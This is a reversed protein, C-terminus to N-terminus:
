DAALEDVAVLELFEGDGEVAWEEGSVVVDIAGM